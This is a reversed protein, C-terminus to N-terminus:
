ELRKVYVQPANPGVGAGCGNVVLCNGKEVWAVYPTGQLFAISSNMSPFFGGGTMNLPVTSGETVWENGNWRKVYLYPGNSSDTTQNNSANLNDAFVLYPIQTATATGGIPTNSASSVSNSIAGVNNFVGGEEKRVHVKGKEHWAIHLVGNIFALSPDDPDSPPGSPGAKLPTPATPVWGSGDWGKVYLQCDTSIPSLCERWSAKITLGNIAISPSSGHQTLQVNLSTLGDRVWGAGDFHKVYIQNNSGDTEAWIVYPVNGSDFAIASDGASKAADVNLAGGVAEWNTGNWKRVFVKCNAGSSDCETYTIFPVPPSAGNSAIRPQQGHSGATNIQAASSWSKANQDFTRVYVNAPTDGESWALYPINGVLAISPDSANKSTVNNQSTGLSKWEGFTTASKQATNTDTRGALDKARVVFHYTTNSALGTVGLTTSGGATEYRVVTGGAPTIGAPPFPVAVCDAPVTSQCIEYRLQNQPTTDDNAPQWELSITSSSTAKAVLQPDDNAFAPAVTDLSTGTTFSAIFPEAMNNLALDEVGTTITVTYVTGVKLDTSQIFNASRTSASYTVSGPVLAGDGSVFFTNTSLTAPEMPESFTASIVANLPVSTAGNPPSISQVTPPINDPTSSPLRDNDKNRCGNGIFLSLLIFCFILARYQVSGRRM